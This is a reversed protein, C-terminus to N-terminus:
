VPVPYQLGARRVVLGAQRPQHGLRERGGARHRDTSRHQQAARGPHGRQHHVDFGHPDRWRVVARPVARRQDQNDLRPVMRTDIGGHTAQASPSVGISLRTATQNASPLLTRSMASAVPRVWPEM